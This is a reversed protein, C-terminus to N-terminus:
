QIKYQQKYYDSYSQKKVINEVWNLHTKYWVVTKQLGQEFNTKPFWTLEENIKRSSISYRRDHGPRDQIFHILNESKGLMNLVFKIIELNTKENGASINYIEGETGKEFVDLIAECNDEVYIWDRENLGDGYVPIKENNIANKIILPILKEPFQFPGYNNTSRTILTPTGYTKHFARVFLDASAKSSSYPSNPALNSKEDFTEDANASGYVEDTSVQLFKKIKFKNAAQLLVVTGKVNTQLFPEVSLISRDVHSEAAFNIIADIEYKEIVEEVKQEDCIDGLEFFYNTFDYLGKLNETNGAYTLKDFNIINYKRSNLVLKIFNSGIFGAGGTVLINNM